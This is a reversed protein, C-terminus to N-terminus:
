ERPDPANSANAAESLQPFSIEDVSIAEDVAEVDVTNNKIKETEARIATIELVVCQSAHRSLHSDAIKLSEGTSASGAISYSSSLLDQSGPM